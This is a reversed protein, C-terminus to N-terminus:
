SSRTIDSSVALQTQSELSVVVRSSQYNKYDAEAAGLESSIVALRQDIFTITNQTSLNKYDRSEKNVVRVLTNLIDEARRPVNDKMTIIIVDSQNAAKGQVTADLQKVLRRATNIPTNWTCIYKGGDEMDLANKTLRLVLSFAGMPISDGYNYLKKGEDFDKGNVRFEKVQYQSGKVNKFELYVSGPQM